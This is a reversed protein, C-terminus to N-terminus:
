PSAATVACPSSPGTPIPRGTDSAALKTGIALVLDAGRVAENATPWGFPGIVGAARPDDEPFV